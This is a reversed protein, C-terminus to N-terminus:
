GVCDEKKLDPVVFTVNGHLNADISQLAKGDVRDIIDRMISSDGETLAKEFLQETFLKLYTKKKKPDIEQLKAKIAAVISVSGPPKGAPNGSIGKQWAPNGKKKCVKTNEIEDKQQEKAVKM